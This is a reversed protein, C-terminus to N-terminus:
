ASLAQAITSSVADRTADDGSASIVSVNGTGPAPTAGGSVVIAFKQHPSERAVTTVTEVPLKGAAVIIACKGLVLTNVFTRGNAVDQSGAIALFRVQGLTKLSADQMGAWVPKVEASTIGASDTLLCASVDRYQRARPEEEARPWLVVAAIVILVVGLGALWYWRRVGDFMRAFM